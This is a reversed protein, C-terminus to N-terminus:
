AKGTAFRETMRGVGGARLCIFVSCFLVSCFLVSCFLYKNTVWRGIKSELCFVNETERDESAGV